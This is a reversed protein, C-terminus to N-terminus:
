SNSRKEAPTVCSSSRVAMQTFNLYVFFRSDLIEFRTPWDELAIPDPPSTKSECGAGWALAALLAACINKNVPPRIAAGM